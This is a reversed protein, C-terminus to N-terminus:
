STLSTYLYQQVIGHFFLCSSRREAGRDNAPSALLSRLWCSRSEPPPRRTRPGRCRSCRCESAVAEPVGLARLDRTAPDPVWIAPLRDHKLLDLLHLADRRDPKTKRVVMARIKAADGVLLTHGLQRMLAHFWLAYGTSEVAVTVPRPLAAYFREIEEAQHCLEAEQVEGRKRIWCRWRSSGHM